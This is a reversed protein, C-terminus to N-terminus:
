GDSPSGAGSAEAFGLGVDHAKLFEFRCVGLKRRLHADLQEDLSSFPRFRRSFADWGMTEEFNLLEFRRGDGCGSAFANESLRSGFRFNGGWV